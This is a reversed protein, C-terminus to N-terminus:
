EQNIKSFFTYVKIPDLKGNTRLGSCIDLGYPKVIDLADIVNDPNLGGALYVPRSVLECIQRSLEWNHVQGTGGLKKIKLNPNGSDLLLADVYPAIKHAEEVSKQNLVHIVQVFNIQHM